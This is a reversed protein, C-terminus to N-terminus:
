RHDGEEDGHLGDTCYCSRISPQPGVEPNGPDDDVWHGETLTGTGAVHLGAFVTVKTEDVLVEVDHSILFRRVKLFLAEAVGQPDSLPVEVEIPEPNHTRGLREFTALTPM